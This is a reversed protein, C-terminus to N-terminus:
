KGAFSQPKFLIHPAVKGQAPNGWENGVAEIDGLLQLVNGSIVFQDVPGVLQGGEYLLGEAPMSFDGTTDKFGAHLGAAFETLYVVKDYKKLMEELSTDGKAIIMTSTSISMESAPSRAAHATHPLNMKTAYELNTLYNKLVGQEILSTVQSPAGEDDFPRVAMSGAFFPDDTMTLKESMIQKGLKDGFLSKGEDVKKASFYGSIMSLVMPMEDKDIVVAYRGTALSKAGLREAAKSISKNVVKDVDIDAFKRAIFFESGTKSSDGEKLLPYAYGIYYNQKFEKDLGESNLIRTFSTAETFQSYPVSEVRKDKEFCDAELQRAVQIKKEMEINEPRFLNMEQTPAPKVLSVEGQKGGVTKANALADRYTRMLSELSLNETYAYGQDAGHIVRVGAIQSQTNEFSGMKKQSFKIGLKEGGSVLLELKVGDKQAQNKLSEFNQKLTDM